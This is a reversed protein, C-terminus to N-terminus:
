LVQAWFSWAFACLQSAFWVNIEDISQVSQLNNTNQRKVTKCVFLILYIFSTYFLFNETTVWRAWWLWCSSRKEHQCHLVRRAVSHDPRWKPQQQDFFPLQRTRILVFLWLYGEVSEVPCCNSQSEPLIMTSTVRLHGSIEDRRRTWSGNWQGIATVGSRPLEVPKAMCTSGHRMARCISRFSRGQVHDDGLRQWFSGSQCFFVHYIM